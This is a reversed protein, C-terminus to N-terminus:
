ISSNRAHSDDSDRRSTSAPTTRYDRINRNEFGKRNRDDELPIVTVTTGAVGIVAAIITVAAICMRIGM